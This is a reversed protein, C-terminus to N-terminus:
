VELPHVEQDYELHLGSTRLRVNRLTRGPASYWIVTLALLATPSLPHAVYLL